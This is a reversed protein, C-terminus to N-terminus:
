KAGPFVIPVNHFTKERPKEDFTIRSVAEPAAGAFRYFMSGSKDMTEFEAEKWRGRSDYVGVPPFAAICTPPKISFEFGEASPDSATKLITMAYGTSDADAVAKGVSFPGNFVCAAPGHAGAYYRVTLNVRRISTQRWFLGFLKLMRTRPMRGEFIFRGQDAPAGAFTDFFTGGVGGTISGPVELEALRLFEVKEGSLPQSVVLDILPEDMLALSPTGFYPVSRTTTDRPVLGVVHGKADFIEYGFGTRVGIYEIATPDGSTRIASQRRLLYGVATVVVVAVAAVALIIWIRRVPPEDQPLPTGPTEHARETEM